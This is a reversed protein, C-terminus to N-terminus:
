FIRQPIFCTKGPTDGNIGTRGNKNVLDRGIYGVHMSLVGHQM